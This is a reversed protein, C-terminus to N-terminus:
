LIYKLGQIQFQIRIQFRIQIWICGLAQIRIRIRIWGIQIRFVAIELKSESKYFVDLKM